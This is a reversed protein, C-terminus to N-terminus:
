INVRKVQELLDRLFIPDAIAEIDLVWIKDNNIKKCKVADKATIIVPLEDEFLFEDGNYYHHDNLSHL